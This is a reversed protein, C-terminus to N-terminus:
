NELSLRHLEGASAFGFRRYLSGLKAAEDTGSCGFVESVGRAKLRAISERELKAGLGPADKSAYFLTQVASFRGDCEKSPAIEMMLYGFMRGNSRATVIQLMGADDLVHYLPLNKKEAVDPRLGIDKAHEAFLSKGDRYFNRFSEEAFEIDGVSKRHQTALDRLMIQKATLAMKAIQPGYAKHYRMIAPLSTQLNFKSITQWWERDFEYPLCREFIAKAVWEEDLEHFQVQLVAGPGRRSVQDLKADARKLVDDLAIPDFHADTGYSARLLSDKVEAVPRRVIVLRADRPILRWFPALATEASGMNPQSLWSKADDFSRIHRLEEHGCTWDRYTLFKSLWYTRSRPLGLIFFPRNM